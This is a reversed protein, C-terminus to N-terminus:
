PKLSNLQKMVLGMRPVLKFSYHVCSSLTSLNLYNFLVHFYDIGYEEKIQFQEIQIKGGIQQAPKQWM